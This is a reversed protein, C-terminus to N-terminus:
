SADVEDVALDMALAAEIQGRIALAGRSDWDRNHAPPDEAEAESADLVHAMWPKRGLRRHLTARIERYEDSWSGLEGLGEGELQRARRYLECVETTILGVAAM